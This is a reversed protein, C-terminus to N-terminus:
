HIFLHRKDEGASNCFVCKENHVRERFILWAATKWRLPAWAKWIEEATPCRTATLYHVMYSSKSSFSGNANWTKASSFPASSGGYTLSRFFDQITILKKIDDIWAGNLVADAVSRRATILPNIIKYIDPAIEVVTRGQLWKDALIFM